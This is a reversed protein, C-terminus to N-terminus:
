PAEVAFPRRGRHQPHGTLGDARARLPVPEDPLHVVLARDVAALDGQTFGAVVADLDEGPERGTFPDDGGADAGELLPLPHALERARRQALDNTAVLFRAEFLPRAKLRGMSLM